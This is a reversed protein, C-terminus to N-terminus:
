IRGESQRRGRGPGFGVEGKGQGVMWSVSELGLGGEDADHLEFDFDAFDGGFGVPLGILVLPQDVGNLLLIIIQLSLRDSQPDLTMFKLTLQAPLPKRQDLSGLLIPLNHLHYPACHPYRLRPNPLRQIYTITELRLSYAISRPRTVAQEALGSCTLVDNWARFGTGSAVVQILVGILMLARHRRKETEHLPITHLWLFQAGTLGYRLLM